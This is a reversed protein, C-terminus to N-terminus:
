GFGEPQFGDGNADPEVIEEIDRECEIMGMEVRQDHDGTVVVPASLAHRVLMARDADLGVQEFLIPAREVFARGDVRPQAAKLIVAPPQMEIGVDRQGVVEPTHEEVVRMEVGRADVARITAVHDAEFFQARSPRAIRLVRVAGENRWLVVARKRRAVHITQAAVHGDSKELEPVRPRLLGVRIRQARRGVVVHHKRLLPGAFVATMQRGDDAVVKARPLGLEAFVPVTAALLRPQILHRQRSDLGKIM